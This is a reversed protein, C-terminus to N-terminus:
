RRKKDIYELITRRERLERLLKSSRIWKERPIDFNMLEKDFAESLSQYKRPPQHMIRRVTERIHWNGVPAYYGPKVERYIFITAQRRISDLYEFVSFRAAMYGGDMFEYRGRTDEYLTLFSPEKSTAAWLSRPHWAEIWELELPGPYLIVLFSNELYEGFFAFVEDIYPYHIIKKRFYEGLISDVATIAWRTPVIKKSRLSGLLGGSLAYILTYISYGSNYLEILSRSARLDDFIRKELLSGLVPSSTIRIDKAEATLGIPKVFSSFRLSLKPVESLKIESDVPKISVASINIEKEYLKWPDHVDVKVMSGLLRTRFNIIKELSYKGWWGVPDDYIEAAEGYVNPPINLMVRIKPYGYEGVLLSPPTSGNATDGKINLYVKYHSRAM